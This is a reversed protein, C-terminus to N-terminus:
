GQPGIVFKVREAAMQLSDRRVGPKVQFVGVSVFMPWFMPLAWLVRGM